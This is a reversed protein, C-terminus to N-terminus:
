TVIHNSLISNLVEPFATLVRLQQAMEGGQHSMKWAKHKQQQQQQQSLGVFHPSWWPTNGREM